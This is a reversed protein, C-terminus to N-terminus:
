QRWKMGCLVCQKYDECEMEDHILKTGKKAVLVGGCIKCKPEKEGWLQFIFIGVLSLLILYLPIGDIM